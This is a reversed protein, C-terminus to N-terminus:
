AKAGEAKAAAGEAAERDAIEKEVRARFTDSKFMKMAFYIGQTRISELLLEGAAKDAAPLFIGNGVVQWGSSGEELRLEGDIDASTGDNFEIM